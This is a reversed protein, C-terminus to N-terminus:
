LHNSVTSIARWRASFLSGRDTNEARFAPESAPSVRVSLTPANRSSPKTGVTASLGASRSWDVVTIPWSMEIGTSM